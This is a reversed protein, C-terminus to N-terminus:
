SDSGKEVAPQQHCCRHAQQLAEVLLELSELLEKRRSSLVASLVRAAYDDMADNIADVLRRGERTLSGCCSFEV